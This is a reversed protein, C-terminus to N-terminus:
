CVCINQGAQKNIEICDAICQNKLLSVVWMQEALYELILILLLLITLVILIHVLIEYTRQKM